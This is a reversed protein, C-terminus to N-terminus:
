DRVCRVSFGMGMSSFRDLIAYSSNYELYLYWPDSFIPETSSWWYGNNGFNAFSGKYNRSGGPLGSFGSENTAGTNPSSWNKLGVEKMKGGAVYEGLYTLLAEWEADTPIHWGLPALEGTEIAYWNYLAGYTNKNSTNNDFWCYAPSYAKRWALDDKLNPISTGDRFKSTKLNETMWVQTGITVTHYVNGDIDKVTNTDSPVNEDDDKGCSTPIILYTGILLLSFIWIISTKKM